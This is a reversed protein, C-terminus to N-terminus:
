ATDQKTMFDPSWKPAYNAMDKIFAAPDAVVLSGGPLLQEKFGAVPDPGLLGVVSKDMLALAAKIGDDGVPKGPQIAAQLAAVLHNTYSYNFIDALVGSPAFIFKWMIGLVIVSIIAPVYLTGEWFEGFPVVKRFILYAFVFGLPLQGLVSVLVIYINNKLAQWFAADAFLLSFQKFGAIGWPEGGFMQGGKYNSLSIVASLVIPFAFVFVYLVFAPLSFLWFARHEEKRASSLATAM